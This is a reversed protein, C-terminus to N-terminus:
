KKNSLFSRIKKFTSLFPMWFISLSELKNQISTFQNQISTFQNQISTFQNQISIEEERKSNEALVLIDEFSYGYNQNFANIELNLKKPDFHKQAVISYDPSAGHFITRLEFQEKLILENPENLRVTKVLDFGLYKTLFTLTQPHIPALHTPDIYFNSSGVIINEPNPTELILIGGPKLVRLSETILIKLKEFEIHEIMHFSSVVVQSNSPLEKLFSIADTNHVNIKPNKIERTIIESLDVGQAQFGNEIMLELWEGRGCGLDVTSSNSYLDCLPKIFDLYVMLRSKILSKSGRFKEEFSNYFNDNM